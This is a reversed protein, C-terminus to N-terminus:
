SIREFHSDLWGGSMVSFGGGVKLAVADGKRFEETEIRLSLDIGSWRQIEDLSEPTGDFVIAFVDEVPRARFREITM